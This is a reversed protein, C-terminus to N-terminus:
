IHYIYLYFVSKTVQSMALLGTAIGAGPPLGSAIPRSYSKSGNLKRSQPGSALGPNTPGM